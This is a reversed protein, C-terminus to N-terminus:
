LPQLRPKNQKRPYKLPIKSNKKIVIIYRSTNLEEIDFKLVNIVKCDLLKLANKAKEIEEEYSIGKYALILGEDKLLPASYEIITSLPAVARSVAIDFSERINIKQAFDEIRVNEARINKLGLQGITNKVFNIKKGVSDIATFTANPYMIALPVSPFGAGCGIDIIKQGPTFVNELEGRQLANDVIVSDLLHKFVIDFDDTISTLNHIKNEAKMLDIFKVMISIQDDTIRIKYKTLTEKLLKEM